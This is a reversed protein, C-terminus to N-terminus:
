SNIYIYMYLTRYTLRTFAPLLLLCELINIYIKMWKCVFYFWRSFAISEATLDVLKKAKSNYIATLSNLALNCDRNGNLNELRFRFHQISDPVPAPLEKSAWRSRNFTSNLYLSPWIKLEGDIANETRNSIIWIFQTKNEPCVCYALYILETRTREIGM